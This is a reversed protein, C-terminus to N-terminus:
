SPSPASGGPDAVPCDSPFPIPVANPDGFPAVFMILEGSSGPLPEEHIVGNPASKMSEAYGTNPGTTRDLRWSLRYGLGLLAAEARGPTMQLIGSCHLVGGPGFPRADEPLVKGGVIPENIGDFPRSALTLGGFHVSAPLGGVGEPDTMAIDQDGSWASGLASKFFSGRASLWEGRASGNYIRIESVWWASADGGFYLNLRMEVGNERWTAELTRYTADGPDSNLAVSGAGRFTKGGAVISFDAASLTVVKTQWAIQPAAAPGAGDGAGDGRGREVASSGFGLSGAGLAVLLLAGVAAIAIWRGLGGGRGPREAAIGVNARVAIPVPGLDVERLVAADGRLRTEFARCSACARLHSDLADRESQEVPFDLSSALIRRASEHDIM